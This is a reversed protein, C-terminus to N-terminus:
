ALAVWAGACVAMLSAVGAGLSAAGNHDNLPNSDDDSSSSDDSESSDDASSTSTATRSPTTFTPSSTRTAAASGSSFASTASSFASSEDSFIDSLSETASAPAGTASASIATLTLGSVNPCSQEFSDLISQSQDYLDSSPALAVLCGLCAELSDGNDQTCLCDTDACTQLTNLISGCEDQCQTPIDDTGITQRALLALHRATLSTTAASAIASSAVFAGFLTILSRVM